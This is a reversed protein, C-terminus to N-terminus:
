AFFLIYGTDAAHRCSVSVCGLLLGDETICLTKTTNKNQIRLFLNTVVIGAYFGTPHATGSKPMESLEAGGGKLIDSLFTCMLQVTHLGIAPTTLFTISKCQASYHLQIIYVM